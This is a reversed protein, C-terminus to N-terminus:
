RRKLFKHQEFPTKGEGVARPVFDSDLLAFDPQLDVDKYMESSQPKQAEGQGKKGKGKKGKGKKGRKSAKRSNSADWDGFYVGIGIEKAIASMVHLVHQVYRSNTSLENGSMFHEEGLANANGTTDRFRIDLPKQYDKWERSKFIQRVQKQFDTWHVLPGVYRLRHLASSRVHNEENTLCNPFSSMVIDKATLLTVNTNQERQRKKTGPGRNSAAERGSNDEANEGSNGEAKEMKKMLRTQVM